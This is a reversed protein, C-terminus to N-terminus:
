WLDENLKKAKKEIRDSIERVSGRDSSPSDDYDTREIKWRKIEGM